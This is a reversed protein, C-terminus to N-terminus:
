NEIKTVITALYSALESDSFGPMSHYVANPLLMKWVPKPEESDTILHVPGEYRLSGAADTKRANAAEAKRGFLGMAKQWGGKFQNLLELGAVYYFPPLTPSVLVLAKGHPNPRQIRSAVQIAHVAMSGGSVVHCVGRPSFSRIATTASSVLREHPENQMKGAPLCLMAIPLDPPLVADLAELLEKRPEDEFLLVVPTGNGTSRVMQIEALLPAARDPKAHAPKRNPSFSAQATPPVKASRRRVIPAPAPLAAHDISGDDLIPFRLATAWQRPIWGAPLRAELFEEIADPLSAQSDRPIVWASLAGDEESAYDALADYILPHETLAAQIRALQNWALRASKRTGPPLLLYFDGARDQYAPRGTKWYHGAGAKQVAGERSTEEGNFLSVLLEGACGPPVPRGRSDVIVATRGPALFRGIRLGRGPLFQAPVEEAVFASGALGFPSDIQALSVREGALEAWARVAPESGHGAEVLVRRLHAPLSKQLEQLVHLWQTWRTRALRLHTIQGAELAEQFSTRTALASEDALVLTAGQNIATLWEELAALTGAPQLSLVRDGSRLQYREGAAILDAAFPELLFEGPAAPEKPVIWAKPQNPLKFAPRTDAQQSVTDWVQDLPISPIETEAFHPHTLSDTVCSRVGLQTLREVLAAPDAEPSAFILSGGEKIVGLLAVGLWPTVTMCVAIPGEGKRERHLYRAFQNSFIELDQFSISDEGQQIAAQEGGEALRPHILAALLGAGPTPPAPVTEPLGLPLLDAAPADPQLVLIGLLRGFQRLREGADRAAIKASDYNLVIEVRKTGTARLSAPLFLGEFFQADLGLWRPMVTHLRGNLNAPQWRVDTHWLPAPLRTLTEANTTFTAPLERAAAAAQRLWDRLLDAGNERVRLPLRSTFLGAVPETGEPLLSRTDRTVGVVVDGEGGCRGLLMGWAAALLVDFPVNWQEALRILEASVDTPVDLLETERGTQDAPVAHELTLFPDEARTGAFQATWFEPDAPLAAELTEALGGYSATPEVEPPENAALADYLALWDRLILFVSEEDLLAPHFTWLLHSAGGPLQLLTIRWLPQSERNFGERSDRELLEKWQGGLQAPDIGSWDPLVWPNDMTENEFLTLSGRSAHHFTSRLIPHRRVVLEWAKQLRNRDIIEGFSLSLQASPQASGNISAERLAARQMSSVPLEKPM